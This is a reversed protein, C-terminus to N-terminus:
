GASAVMIEEGTFIYGNALSIPRKVQTSPQGEVGLFLMSGTGRNETVYTYGVGAFATGGTTGPDM